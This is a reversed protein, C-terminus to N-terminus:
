DKTAPVRTTDVIVTDILESHQKSEQESINRMINLIFKSLDNLLQVADRFGHQYLLYKWYVTVFINQINFIFLSNSNSSIKISSNFTVIRCITSFVLVMLIIKMYVSNPHMQTILKIYDATVYPPYIADCGARFAPYDIAQSERVIFMGNIAGSVQLNQEILQEYDQKSLQQHYPTSEIFSQINLYFHKVIDFQTSAKSRIKIPLTSQNQLLHKTHSIIDTAEYAHLINSLVNWDDKSLTSRDNQLLNLTCPQFFSIKM